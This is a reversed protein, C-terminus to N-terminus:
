CCVRTPFLPANPWFLFIHFLGDNGKAYFRALLLSRTATSPQATTSGSTKLAMVGARSSPNPQKTRKKSESRAGLSMCPPPSPGGQPMPRSRVSCPQAKSSRLAHSSLFVLVKRIPGAPAVDGSKLCSLHGECLQDVWRGDDVRQWLPRHTGQRGRGRARPM